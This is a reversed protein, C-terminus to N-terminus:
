GNKKVFEVILKKEFPSEKEKKIIFIAEFDEKNLGIIDAPKKPVNLKFQKHEKGNLATKSVIIPVKFIEDEPQIKEKLIDDIELKDEKSIKRSPM